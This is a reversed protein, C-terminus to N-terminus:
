KEDGTSAPPLWAILFVNLCVIVMDMATTKYNGSFLAVFGFAACWGIAFWNLKM